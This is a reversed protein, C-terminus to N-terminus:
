YETRGALVALALLVLALLATMLVPAEERDEPGTKESQM